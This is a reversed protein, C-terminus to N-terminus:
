IASQWRPLDHHILGHTRRRTTLFGIHHHQTGTDGYIKIWAHLSKTAVGLRIAVEGAKYGRDVVQKVTEMKFENPYRKRSM